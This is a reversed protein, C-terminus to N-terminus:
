PKLKFQNLNIYWTIAYSDGTTELFLTYFLNYHNDKIFCASKMISSCLVIIQFSIRKIHELLMNLDIAHVLM